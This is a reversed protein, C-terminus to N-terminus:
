EWSRSFRRVRSFIANSEEEKTLLLVGTNSKSAAQEDKSRPPAAATAAALPEHSPELPTVLAKAWWPAM